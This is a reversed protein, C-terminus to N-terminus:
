STTIERRLRAPTSSTALLLALYSGKIPVGFVTVALLSMCLFNLMALAIYPMQKGLMFEARTVPTVYLNIISGLEKERVVSLASLMAPLLLLLLQGQRLLLQLM